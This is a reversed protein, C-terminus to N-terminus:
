SDGGLRATVLFARGDKSYYCFGSGDQQDPKKPSLQPISFLLAIKTSGFAHRAADILSL